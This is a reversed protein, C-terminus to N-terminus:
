DVHFTLLQLGVGGAGNEADEIPGGDIEILEALRWRWSCLFDCGEDDVIPSSMGRIMVRAMGAASPNDASGAGV